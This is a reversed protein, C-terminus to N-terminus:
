HLLIAPHTRSRLPMRYLFITTLLWALLLVLGSALLYDASTLPLLNLDTLSLTQKYENAVAQIAFQLFTRAGMIAVIAIAVGLLHAMLIQFWLMCYIQWWEIGKALFVGYRHRHHGVLGGIQIGLFSVLLIFLFFTYPKGLAALMKSLFGFRNLADQYFPHIALANDKVSKLEEVAQSLLTRDPVYVLAHHFGNGRATVDLPVPQPETESCSAFQQDRLVDDPLRHCPLVLVGDGHIITDGTITQTVQYQLQYQEAYSELLRTWVPHAFTVLVDGRYDRVDGVLKAAFEELNESSAQEAYLLIQKIREGARGEFEPFYRLEVFDFAAHLAHYTTLPMIFAIKDIVPFRDVWTIRFPLLEKRLGLTVELWLTTFSDLQNANLNPPLQNFLKEPLTRQLTQRYVHYDFYKLFLSRSVLIDLPLSRDSPPLDWLPNNPYVAWGDFDPGFKSGNPQRNQWINDGPLALLPRLSAELLRYPYITLGPVPPKAGSNDREGLKRVATLVSQDIANIGGASLMNNTVSIPVGYGATNGLLVDVFCNLLGEQSAFLLLILTLLLAMFITLWVFDRGGPCDSKRYHFPLWFEKWALIIWSRM